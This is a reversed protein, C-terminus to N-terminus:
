EVNALSALTRCRAPGGRKRSYLNGSDDSVEYGMLDDSKFDDLMPEGGDPRGGSESFSSDGSGFGSGDGGDGGDEGGSKTTMILKLTALTLAFIVTMIILGVAELGKVVGKVARGVKGDQRGSKAANEFATHCDRCFCVTHTEGDRRVTYCKMGTADGSRRCAACEVLVNWWFSFLRHLIIFWELRDADIL